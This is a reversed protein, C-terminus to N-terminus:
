KRPHTKKPAYPKVINASNVTNYDANEIIVSKFTSTSKVVSVTVFTLLGIVVFILIIRKLINAINNQSQIRRRRKRM